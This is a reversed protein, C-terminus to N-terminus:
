PLKQSLWGSLWDFEKELLYTNSFNIGDGAGVEIFYGNFKNNLMTLVFIDQKLQAYSKTKSDLIKIIFKTQSINTNISIYHIIKVLYKRIISNKYKEDFIIKYFEIKATYFFGRNIIKKINHLITTSLNNKKLNM